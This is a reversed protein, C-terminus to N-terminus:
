HTQNIKSVYYDFERQNAKRLSIVRLVSDRWTYAVFYLRTNLPVYAIERVEGYDQRVDVEM